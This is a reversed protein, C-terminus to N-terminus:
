LLAMGDERKIDLIEGLHFEVIGDAYTTDVVSVLVNDGGHGGQGVIFRLADFRRLYRKGDAPDIYTYRNLTTQKIERREVTKTGGVIENFLIQRIRLTLINMGQTDYKSSNQKIQKESITKVVKNRDKIRASVFLM